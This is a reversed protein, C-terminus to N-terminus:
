QKTGGQRRAAKQYEKWVGACRRDKAIRYSKGAWRIWNAVQGEDAVKTEPPQPAGIPWLLATRHAGLTILWQPEFPVPLQFKGELRGADKLTQFPLEYHPRYDMIEGPCRGLLV